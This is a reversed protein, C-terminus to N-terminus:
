VADIRGSKKRSIYICVTFFSTRLSKHMQAVSEFQHHLIM